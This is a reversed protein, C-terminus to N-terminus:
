IAQCSLNVHDVFFALVSDKVVEFRVTSIATSYPAETLFNHAHQCKEHFCKQRKDTAIQLEDRLMKVIM